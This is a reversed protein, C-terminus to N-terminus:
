NFMNNEFHLSNKTKNQKTQKQLPHRKLFCKFLFFVLDMQIDLLVLATAGGIPAILVPKGCHFKQVNSTQILHCFATIYPLVWKSGNAQSLLICPTKKVIIKM